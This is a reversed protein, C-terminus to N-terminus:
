HDVHAFAHAATGAHGGTGQDMVTRGGHRKGPNLDHLIGKGVPGVIDAHRDTVLAFIGGTDLGARHLRIM